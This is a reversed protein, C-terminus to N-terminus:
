SVLYEHRFAAVLDEPANQETRIWPNIVHPHLAEFLRAAKYECLPRTNVRLASGDLVERRLEPDAHLFIIFACQANALSRRGATALDAASGEGTYVAVRAAARDCAALIVGVDNGLLMHFLADRNLVLGQAADIIPHTASVAAGVSM